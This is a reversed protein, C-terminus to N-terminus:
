QKIQMLVMNRDQAFVTQGNNSGMISQYVLRYYYTGADLNMDPFIINTCAIGSGLTVVSPINNVGGSLGDEIRYVNSVNANFSPDTSRQLWISFRNSNGLSSANNTSKVTVNALVLIGKGQEGDDEITYEQIPIDLVVAQSSFNPLPQAYVQTCVACQSTANEIWLSAANATGAGGLNVASPLSGAQSGFAISASSVLNPSGEGTGAPGQPGTEGQPGQPGTEGQPGQAGDNGAPGQPGIEGQPGQPGTAGDNGVPGQPGTEGQPGQPGPAGDNGAPGQAGDNGAPGQPGVEGQPGQPGVGGGSGSSQAYLAFPVSLLESSGVEQYNNGGSPDVEIKVWQNAESWPISNFDGSLPIGNGIKLNFLGFQNTLAQHTESYQTTGTSSGQNISIRVAVNSNVFVSGSANRAIAQYNIGAPVNQAFVNASMLAVVVIVWAGIMVKKIM